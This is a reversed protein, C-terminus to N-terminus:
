PFFLGSSAFLTNDSTAGIGDNGGDYVRIQDFLWIARKQEVIVNGGYIADLTTSVSCTSGVTPDGETADCPVSVQFPLDVVTAGGAGASNLDTIRLTASFLLDGVYDGLTQICGGTNYNICRVDTYSFDVKGDEQDGATVLCPPTENAGGNKCFAKMSVYGTSNAANQNVSQTGVTLYSSSQAAPNCASASIPGQHITQGPESCMNYVPVLSIRMPTAAKPRPYDGVVPQWDPSDGSAAQSYPYSSRYIALNMVFALEGNNNPAWVANAQIGSGFGSNNNIINQKNTGDPNMSWVDPDGALDSTFALKRGDPAWNPESDRAGNSTLRLEGTGDAKITFIEWNSATLQRVFAIKSSDSSWTPATDVASNTTLRTPTGGAASIKYLDTNGSVTSAYVIQTGDGSWSPTFDPVTNNTIKTPLTGNANVTWIDQDGDFDSVFAVKAGNPSWAPQQENGTFSTLQTNGSGDPNVTYIDSGPPGVTEYAIKGNAGPFTAQAVPALAVLSFAVAALIAAGSATCRHPVSM